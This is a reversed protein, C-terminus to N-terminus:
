STILSFTSGTIPRESSSSLIASASPRRLLFLTSITPSGPTPLVAIASPSAQFMTFSLTGSNKFSYSTYLRSMPLISAPEFYRPSKSSRKLSTSAPNRPLPLVIINISSACIIEPAPAPPPLLAFSRALINFGASAFPLM